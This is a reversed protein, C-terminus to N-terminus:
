GRGVRRIRWLVGGDPVHYPGKRTVSLHGWDLVYMSGDPGFRVAVLREFGGPGKYLSAPGPRKNTAFVEVKGTALNLRAVDFGHLGPDQATAPFGSGWRAIFAQGEFGFSAPAFDFGAVGAHMGLEALAKQLKGQPRQLLMPPQGRGGSPLKWAPVGNWFDPWGYWGRQVHYFLDPGEMPRSGRTDPGDDIAYLEGDKGFRIDFPNRLGWAVLELGSGDKGMRMVAGNCPLQGRVIQGPQTTHGFPTFAGTSVRSFPLLSRPDATTVNVGRLYTDVCPIDHPAPLYRGWLVWNDLGVIGANTVTGQALYLKGDPGLALNNNKHDGWSPLGTLIDRRGAPTLVTVAGAHSVYLNGDADHVFGALPPNFGGAVVTLRGDPGLKLIRGETRGEVGATAAYAGGYGSEGIFISGDSTIELASPANLGSAMVEVQYGAPVAIAAPDPKRVTYQRDSPFIWGKWAAAFLLLFGVLVLVTWRAIRIWPSAYVPM